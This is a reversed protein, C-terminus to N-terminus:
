NFSVRGVLFRVLDIAKDITSEQMMSLGLHVTKEIFADTDEFDRSSDKIWFDLVLWFQIVM